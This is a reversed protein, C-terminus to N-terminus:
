ETSDSDSLRARESKTRTYPKGSPQAEVGGAPQGADPPDGSGKLFLVVGLALPSLLAMLLSGGVAAIGPTISLGGSAAVEGVVIAGKMGMSEHPACAYTSIGDGDFRLAYAAGAESLMDSEYGVKDDYVNHTGGKGSWEWIVTTGPDIRVAAPEFAFQGDNGTAGVTIRVEKQGTANVTGDYNDVGDFWGGYDPEATTSMGEGVIIAGKMGISEHPECAYRSVGDNTFSHEFTAGADSLLDSEYSGDEATVNHTGGEGTWEWIVTTGPDIHVAPPSFAFSGGNGSAGVEIRVTKAGTKDVISDYNGVDEFWTDLDGAAQANVPEAAGAVAGATTAGAAMKLATRRNMGTQIHTSTTM